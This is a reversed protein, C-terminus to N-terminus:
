DLDRIVDHFDEVDSFSRYVSAFRIYAVKDMKKLEHMVNEGLERATIEKEGYALVKQIIREIAQEIYEVPVPRKHLARSFSQHLKNRSFDERKGNQKVVQPLTLEVSEYTTFRKDCESCRRRRRISNGEDNVRSDVVQTDDTGCFPCKM